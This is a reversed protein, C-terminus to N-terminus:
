AAKRHPRSRRLRQLTTVPLFTLRRIGEVSSMTRFPLAVEDILEDLVEGEEVEGEEKVSHLRSVALFGVLFAIVFLFDLARFNLASVALQQGPSSWNISFSLEYASFVDALLGGVLPAIAGTLAGSLGFVTLYGHAAGQPALKLAINSAALSVGAISLGSLAHILVLLPITLVHPEPLTTFCWALIAVLYLPGSVGLVSKNSYRDAFQGWIRLSWLMALQSVVTLGTVVVLPLGIRQLMYIIFFPTAINVAFNWGGIFWLLPRYNRDSLPLKLLDMLSIDTEDEMAPEPMRRIAAIGTLGFGLGFTFLLSYAYLVNAPSVHRWWTVLLGGAVTLIVSMTTGLLMRKSFVRGLTRAPVLDRVWSGWAPGPMASLVGALLLWQILFTVGRDVFLIPIAIIFVWLLRASGACLITMARRKKWRTVVYLGVLQMPQSLFGIAALLGIEYNSAGLALAFASLFPGGQLAGMAM